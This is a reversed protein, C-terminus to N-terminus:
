DTSAKQIIMLYMLTEVVLRSKSSSPPKPMIAKGLATALDMSLGATKTGPNYDIRGGGTVEVVYGAAEIWERLAQAVNGIIIYYL